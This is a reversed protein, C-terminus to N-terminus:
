FSLISHQLTAPDRAGALLLMLLIRLKHPSLDGGALLGDRQLFAQPPVDPRAARTSQVVCVGQRAAAVLAEREGNAPRGPALGMSVLGRAGARVAAEVASGDAGAYSVVIDVRPLKACGQVDIADREARAPLPLRRLAVSADPRVMGLPGQGGAEFAHLDFSSAKTADRAALVLNNMVVLTGLGAAQPCAAVAVAARLNALADSGSTNAPRQAGTVVVPRTTRLTCDLFWATEELTATGHTVVFGDPAQESAAVEDILRALALWDAPTVGTSPLTRFPVAVIEVPLDLADLDRLLADIDRIVGSESYEVWDFAHRAAMAFTGGTGIVAIRPRARTPDSAAM